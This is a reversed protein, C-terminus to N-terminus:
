LSDLPTHVRVRGDADSAIRGCECYAGLSQLHLDQVRWRGRRQPRCVCHAERSVRYRRLRILRVWPHSHDSNVERSPVVTQLYQEVWLPRSHRRAVKDRGRRHWQRRPGESAVVLSVLKSRNESQARAQCKERSMYSNQQTRYGSMNARSPFLVKQITTFGRFLTQEQFPMNAGSSPCTSCRVTLDNSRRETGSGKM